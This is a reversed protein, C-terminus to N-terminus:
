NCSYKSKSRHWLKVQDREFFSRTTGKEIEALSFDISVFLYYESKLNNTAHTDIEIYHM